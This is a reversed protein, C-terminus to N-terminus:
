RVCTLMCVCVCVSVWVWVTVGVGVGVCVGGRVCVRVCARVCARMCACVCVGECGLARVGERLMLKLEERRSQGPETGSLRTGNDATAVAQLAVDVEVADCLLDDQSCDGEGM